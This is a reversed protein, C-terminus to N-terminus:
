KITFRLKYTAQDPTCRMAEGCSDRTVTFSAKGKKSAKFVWTSTGCGTGPHQCGEPATPGFPIPVVNKAKVVKLNTAKADLWYTSALAITISTNLKISINRKNDADALSIKGAAQASHMPALLSILLVALAALTRARLQKCM